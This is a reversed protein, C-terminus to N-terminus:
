VQPQDEAQRAEYGADALKAKIAEASTQTPELRVVVRQTRHDAKVQRVGSVQSLSRQVANECGNCHLRQEGIIEFTVTQTM